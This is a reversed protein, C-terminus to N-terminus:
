KSKGFSLLSGIHWYQKKPKKSGETATTTEAADEEEEEEIEKERPKEDTIVQKEEIKEETKLANDEVIELEVETNNEPQPSHDLGFDSGEEEGETEPKPVDDDEAIIDLDEGTEREPDKDDMRTVETVEKVEEITKEM